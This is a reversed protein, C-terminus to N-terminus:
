RLYDMLSPLSSMKSIVMFSAQLKLQNHNMLAVAEPVEIDEIQSISEQLYIGVNEHYAQTEKLTNQLSAIESSLVPLRNLSQNVLELAKDVTAKNQDVDTVTLFLNIGRILNEFASDQATINYTVYEGQDIIAVKGESDGSYYSFDPESDLTPTAMASLDAPPHRNNNGGFIYHGAINTNLLRGIEEKLGEIYKKQSGLIHKSQTTQMILKRSQIGIETLQNLSVDAFNMRNELVKNSDKFTEMSQLHSRLKLSHTANFNLDRFYMGKKLSSSKRASENYDAYSARLNNFLSLFQSANTVRM